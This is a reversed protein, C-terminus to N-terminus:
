FSSRELQKWGCGIPNSRTALTLSPLSGLLYPKGLRPSSHSAHSKSRGWPVWASWRGPQGRGSETVGQGYEVFFVVGTGTGNQVVLEVLALAPPGPDFAAPAMPSDECGVLGAVVITLGILTMGNKRRM